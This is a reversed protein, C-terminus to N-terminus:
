RPLHRLHDQLAPLVVLDLPGVGAHDLLREAAPLRVRPVGSHDHAGGRPRAGTGDPRDAAGLAACARREVLVPVFDRVNSDKFHDMAARVAADVQDTPAGAALPSGSGRPSGSSVRRKTRDLPSAGKRVSWPADGPEPRCGAMVGLRLQVGCGVGQYASPMGSAGSMVTVTSGEYAGTCPRTRPAAARPLSAM